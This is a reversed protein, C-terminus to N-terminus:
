GPRSNPGNVLQSELESARNELDDMELRIKLALDTDKRQKALALDTELESLDMLVNGLEASMAYTPDDELHSYRSGVATRSRAEKDRERDGIASLNSQPSANEHREDAIHRSQSDRERRTKRAVLYVVMLTVLGIVLAIALGIVSM